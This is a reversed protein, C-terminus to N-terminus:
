FHSNICDIIGTCVSNPRGNHRMERFICLCTKQWNTLMSAAMNTSSTMRGRASVVPNKTETVHSAAIAAIQNIIVLAAIDSM